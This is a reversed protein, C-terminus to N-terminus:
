TVLNDGVKNRNESLEMVRNMRRILANPEEQADQLFSIVLRVLQTPFLAQTGYLLEYPPKGASRRTTMRVAWLTFVLKSDWNKQNENITKKLIKVLTKNSSEALGNGQPHYATSHSFIVNYTQCFNIFKVSNFIQAYDTVINMLCGFRSFINEELFKMVVLDNARRSPVAEVWKTFYDTATLIWKFKGSSPPNIEGIFDLGWQRFPEEVFVPVLPFRALMKKEAFLQCKQCSRVTRYVDSFLSPWYFSSKLIKHATVKWIYNGGCFCEHYEKIVEITEEETLFLLLM